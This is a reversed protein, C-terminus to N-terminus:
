NLESTMRKATRLFPEMECRSAPREEVYEKLHTLASWPEGTRLLILGLDRREEPADPLLCVLRKQVPLAEQWRERKAHAMKLNRLVRAAIDRHAAPALVEPSWAGRGSIAEVRRRCEGGRLVDGKIFPDVYLAGEATDCGVLFHGPTGVGYCPLGAREAVALYLIALTIPIGTRRRLVENLYSNRPDYYDQENGHFGEDDYLLRSVACLRERCSEEDQGGGCACRRAKEGFQAIEQECSTFCLRPYADAAFELLLRVLNVRTQGACLKCFESNEAAHSM